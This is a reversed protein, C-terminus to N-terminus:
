LWQQLCHQLFDRFHSNGRTETVCLAVLMIKSWWSRASASVVGFRFTMSVFVLARIGRPPRAVGHDSLPQVSGKKGPSTRFEM